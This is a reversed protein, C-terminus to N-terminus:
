RTLSIGAEARFRQEWDPDYSTDDESLCFEIEWGASITYAKWDRRTLTLYHLLGVLDDIHHLIMTGMLPNEQNAM